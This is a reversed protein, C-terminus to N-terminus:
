LKSALFYFLTSGRARLTGEEIVGTIISMGDEIGRIFTKERGM